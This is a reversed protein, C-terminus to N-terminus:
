HSVGFVAESQRLKDLLPHAAGGFSLQRQRPHQFILTAVVGLSRQSLRLNGVQLSRPFRGHGTRLRGACARVGRPLVNRELVLRLRKTEVFHAILPLKERRVDDLRLLRVIRAQEFRLKRLRFALAQQNRRM